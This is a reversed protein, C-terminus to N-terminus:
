AAANEGTADAKPTEQAAKSLFGSVQLIGQLVEFFDNYSGGADIYADYLAYTDPLTMSHQYKQLAGHLIIVIDGVRPMSMGKLSVNEPDAGSLNDPAMSLLVDLVSKGLQREVDVTSQATLRLKYEKDGVTFTSYLM